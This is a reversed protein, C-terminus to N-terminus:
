DSVHGDTLQEDKKLDSALPKGLYTDILHGPIGTGPKKETLNDLSLTEGKALDQKAVLSKMFLQRMQKQDDTLATKDIPNQRMTHIANIGEVLTTLEDITLSSSVDPGFMDKSFTTHVEIITAGLSVAALSPWIKGSHDSLGVACNYKGLFETIINLGVQDMSTPYATTCQMLAINVSKQTLTQVIDDIESLPSMGTSLIIPKKTEIMRDLMRKSLIEGSGIKWAQINLNELLDIAAISFPSSLFILGKDEAHTKLNAWQEASFEMRKWYDYRTKDQHSFKVRWPENPTSEEEAIHTQFKIADAGTKAVADIFAHAININGDHTQGIEAIVFPKQNQSFSLTSM